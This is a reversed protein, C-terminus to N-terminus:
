KHFPNLFIYHKSNTLVMQKTDVVKGDVLLMYTYTGASLTKGSIETQGIGKTSVSIIKLESGDLAYIKVVASKANQPVYFRIVTNDSFPNPTNQELSSSSTISPNLPLSNEKTLLMTELKEIRQTLKENESKLSGVESKLEENLEQVAKVLPMVFDSYRLSYLEDPNAPKQVGSFDYGTEKAAKEVDQALFGTMKIKEIDYKTKWDTKDKDTGKYVMQNERHINLNYTVPRLKSIFALGPVDEKVNDKIRADSFTSFGVHGAIVSVSTNGIEIRDSANVVGGAGEGVCTTNDLNSATFYAFSRLGTNYSGTSNLFVSFDGIGTNNSGTLNNNLSNNGCAANNFGTSDHYLSFFGAATNNNGAVNNFGSMLGVWTNANGKESLAVDGAIRYVSDTNISGNKVDLKFVPAANGIGVIGKNTVTIRVANNTRVKFSVNDTTGVFNTSSSTGANGTINWSQANLSNNSVALIYLAATITIIKKM